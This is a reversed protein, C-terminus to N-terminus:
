LYDLVKLAWRMERRMKMEGIQKWNFNFGAKSTMSFVNRFYIEGISTTLM